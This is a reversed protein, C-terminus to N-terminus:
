GALALAPVRAPATDGRRWAEVATALDALSVAPASALVALEDASLDYEGLAEYPTELLATLFGRDVAGRCLILQMTQMSM